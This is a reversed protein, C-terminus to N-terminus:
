LPSAITKAFCVSQPSDKYHGYPTIRHWGHSEYLAIAEPQALGTELQLLAYGLEAARAELAVLLARSIGRRRARPATYMRKIEGITSDSDLPKVAGCGVPDGDLSAVLFTGQPPRVLEPTVEALYDDDDPADAQGTLVDDAYRENLDVLLEQVLGGGVPGDYPEETITILRRAPAPADQPRGVQHARGPRRPPSAAGGEHDARPRLQGTPDTRLRLAGAQEPATRGALVDPDKRSPGEVLVEEVRGVRAEHRALGSREVVIRLREFRDAVVDAPVFDDVREAAETGPRPSYIFTYASDYAAEAAVELTREFDDETEGPFGVIIDTTVALDDIAARAAALRELYRDATYGRHMAALVRDSGSQLPLHLHECVAPTEAMAAITEPRLDKPHPSTYRVREIGDVDGVARLLQDFLPRIRDGGGARRATLTLDRGYSNVNQGLLTVETVGDGAAGRVEDVIDDFPRSIEKGRVAPVICFACSNDCGIQITVWGSWPVQRRVPLASPFTDLDDAVTEELIEVISSGAAEAEHLLDAARHVNHTGLVVDVYPARDTVTARDKQALCGAVAIQMGPKRDKLSKLHGLTGYLKNDANERICCTNLM